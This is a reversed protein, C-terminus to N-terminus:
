SKFTAKFDMEDWMYCPCGDLGFQYLSRTWKYCYMKISSLSDSRQPLLRTCWWLRSRVFSSSQTIDHLVVFLNRVHPRGYGEIVLGDFSSFRFQVCTAVSSVSFPILIGKLSQGVVYRTYLYCAVNIIKWLFGLLKHNRSVTSSHLLSSTFFYSLSYECIVTYGRIGPNAAWFSLRYRSLPVVIIVSLTNNEPM